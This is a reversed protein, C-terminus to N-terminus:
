EMSGHAVGEAARVGGEGESGISPRCGGLTSWM